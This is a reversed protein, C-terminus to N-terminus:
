LLRLRLAFTFINALHPSTCVRSAVHRGLGFSVLQPFKFTFICLVHSIFGDQLFDIYDLITYNPSYAAHKEPEDM